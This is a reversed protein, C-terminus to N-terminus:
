FDAGGLRAVLPLVGVCSVAEDDSLAIREYFQSNAQRANWGGCIPETEFFSRATLTNVPPLRVYASWSLPYGTWLACPISKRSLTEAVSTASASKAYATQSIM